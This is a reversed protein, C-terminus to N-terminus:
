IINDDEIPEGFGASLKAYTSNVQISNDELYDNISAAGSSELVWKSLENFSDKMVATSSTFAYSYQYATQLSTALANRSVIADRHEEFTTINITKAYNVAELIKRSSTIGALAAKAFYDTYYIFEDLM